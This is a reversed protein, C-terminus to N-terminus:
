AKRKRRNRSQEAATAWRCNDASYGRDNDRRDISHNASPRDGMDAVFREFSLRWEDCITIGRGGYHSFAHHNPNTCREKMGAWIKYYPHKTFETQPGNKKCGCSVTAGSKLLNPGTIKEGGCSCSCVAMLRGEILRMERVTLRGFTKGLVRAAISHQAHAALEKQVCGCSTTIGHLVSYQQTTKSKGCACICLVYTQTGKRFSPGSITLRGFQQGSLDKLM